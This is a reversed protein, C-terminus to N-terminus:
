EGYFSNNFKLADYVCERVATDTAEGYVDPLQRALRDLAARVETWSLRDRRAALVIGHIALNGKDSFMSYEPINLHQEKNNV